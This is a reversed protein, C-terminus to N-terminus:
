EDSPVGIILQTTPLDGHGIEQLKSRVAVTYLEDGDFHLTNPYLVFSREPIDETDSVVELSCIWHNCTDSIEDTDFTLSCIFTLSGATLVQKLENVDEGIAAGALQFAVYELKM